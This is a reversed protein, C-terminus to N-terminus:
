KAEYVPWTADPHGLRTTTSRRLVFHKKVTHAVRYTDYLDSAGSVAGGVIPIRRGLIDAVSKGTADQIVSSLVRSTVVSHLRVDYVPSTAVAAPSTPLLGGTIQRDLEREGLLCMAIATRVRPDEVDYGHLHAICAAMRTQTFVLGAINAPVGVVASVIGGINALLGQSGAVAVHSRVISDVAKAVDKKKLLTKGALQKASPFKSFGDIAFDMIRTLGLSLAPAAIRPLQTTALDAVYEAAKQAGEPITPMKGREHVGGM